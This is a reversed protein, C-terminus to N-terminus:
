RPLTGDRRKDRVVIVEMEAEGRTVSLGLGPLRTIVNVPFQRWINDPLTFSYLLNDGSRSVVPMGLDEEFYQALEDISVGDFYLNDDEPISDDDTCKCRVFLIGGNPFRQKEYPVHKGYTLEGIITRRMCKRAEPWKSKGEFREIRTPEEDNRRILFAPRRRRERVIELGLKDAVETLADVTPDWADYVVRYYSPDKTEVM